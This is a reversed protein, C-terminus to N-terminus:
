QDGTPAAAWRQEVGSLRWYGIAILWTVAFLGVIIFGVNNLDLGSVWDTVPNVWVANDHLVGVLEITGILLAVAISLGTITFNCFIKRVPKAFAWDYAVTMFLGDATDMLSMGAAFLVPLTLVAYWPLGAAAGSGALALLTVETATDFGLGFLVGVPFMQIPHTIRRMIPRLIRALFGRSDLQKELDDENFEGRRLATFVRWIGALAVINIIGILWLFLGSALTGAIGLDHRATSDDNELVGAVSTAALVLLAMILVTMSHGMAFWFGVSKPKAGDATLKRTTNDIAAIHDADFAHRLGFTYATVGLGVGFVQTGVQYHHPVVLLVLSGFGIVHLAVIAAALVGFERWDRRDWAQTVRGFVKPSLQASESM